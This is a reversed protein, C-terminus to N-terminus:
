AFELFAVIRIEACVLEDSEEIPRGEVFQGINVAGRLQKALANAARVVHAITSLQFCQGGLQVLDKGAETHILQM